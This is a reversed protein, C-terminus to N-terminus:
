RQVVSGDICVWTPDVQPDLPHGTTKGRELSTMTMVPLQAAAPQASQAEM